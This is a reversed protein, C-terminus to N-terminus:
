GEYAGDGYGAEGYGDGTATPVADFPTPSWESFGWGRSSDSYTFVPDSISTVSVTDGLGLGDDTLTVVKTVAEGSPNHQQLEEIDGQQTQLIDIFQAARRRALARERREKRTDAM